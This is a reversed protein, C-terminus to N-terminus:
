IESIIYINKSKAFTKFFLRKYMLKLTNNDHLFDGLDILLMTILILLQKKAFRLHDTWLDDIFIVIMIYGFNM